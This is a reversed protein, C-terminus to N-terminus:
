GLERVDTAVADVIQGAPFVERESVEAAEMDPKAGAEWRGWREGDKHLADRADM